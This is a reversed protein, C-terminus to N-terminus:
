SPRCASAKRRRAMLVGGLVLLLSAGGFPRIPVASVSCGKSSSQTPTTGAGSTAGVVNSGSGTTTGSPANATGSNGGGVGSTGVTTGSGAAGSGGTVAGSTTGSGAGTTAVTGSSAGTTGVSTGSTAGSGASGTSAGSGTSGSSAGSAAADSVPGAGGDPLPQLTFEVYDLNLHKTTSQMKIVQLGAPLTATAFNPYPVWNDSSAKTQYNPFVTAWTALMTGNSFVELGMTGNGGEGGPPGNGSAWTSSLYYTGATQVNVTFNVWDGVQVAGIYFDATTPSPYFTGDLAPNGTDYWLSPSTQDTKSLTAQPMDTRYGAGGKDLIHDGTHFAVMEGGMDYNVFDIRGPITYPGAVVTPPIIGKGGAVAPDFPLGKYGVPIDARASAEVVLPLSGTAVLVLTSRLFRNM